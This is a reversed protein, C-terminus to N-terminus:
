MACACGTIQTHIALAILAGARSEEASACLDMYSVFVVLM